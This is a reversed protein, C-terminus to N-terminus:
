KRWRKIKKKEQSEQNEKLTKNMEGLKQKHKGEIEELFVTVKEKLVEIIKM